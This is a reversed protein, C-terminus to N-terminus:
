TMHGCAASQDEQFEQLYCLSKICTDGYGREWARERLPALSPSLLSGPVCQSRMSLIKLSFQCRRLRSSVKHRIFQSRLPTFDRLFIMFVINIVDNIIVYFKYYLM